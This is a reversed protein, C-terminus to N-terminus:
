RKRENSKWVEIFQDLVIKTTKKFAPFLSAVKRNSINGGDYMHDGFQVKRSFMEAIDSLLVNGFSAINYIGIIDNRISFNIFDLIDSHLVCNYRSEGSLHFDTTKGEMMRIITNKRSYKGLLSTPRLILYNPCNNRVISESILKTTPYIGRVNDLDIIEDETHLETNKPYLGATSFFIFKRHPISTLENTLLINDEFYNYISDSTVKKRSNIACHIIVSAGQRKLVEIEKISTSRTLAAGGLNEYIYRGIGSLVGTTLTKM